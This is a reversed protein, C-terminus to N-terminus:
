ELAEQPRSPVNFRWVAEDSKSSRFDIGRLQVLVTMRNWPGVLWSTAGYRCNALEMDVGRTCIVGIWVAECDADSACSNLM